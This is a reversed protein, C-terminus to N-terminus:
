YNFSEWPTLKSFSVDNISVSHSSVADLQADTDEQPVNMPLKRHKAVMQFLNLAALKIQGLELTKSAATNQICIWNSEQTQELQDQLEAVMNNQQLIRNSSEELYQQLCSREEEVAERAIQERRILSAQTARLTEFRGIMESIDQFEQLYECFPKHAALRGQLRTKVTMLRAIEERLHEAEVKKLAMQQKEQDAKRMARSRKADNEQLLSFPGPDCRFAQILTRRGVCLHPWSWRLAPHQSQLRWSDSLLSASSCLSGTGLAHMRLAALLCSCSLCFPHSPLLAELRNARGYSM